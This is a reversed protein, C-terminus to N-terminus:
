AYHKIPTASHDCQITITIMVEKNLGHGESLGNDIMRFVVPPVAGQSGSGDLLRDVGGFGCIPM